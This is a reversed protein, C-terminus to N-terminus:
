SNFRKELLDKLSGTNKNNKELLDQPLSHKTPDLYISSKILNGTVSYEITKLLSFFVNQNICHKECFLKTVETFAKVCNEHNDTNEYEKAALSYFCLEQLEEVAVDTQEDIEEKVKYFTDDVKEFISNFETKPINITYGTEFEIIFEEELTQVIKVTKKM